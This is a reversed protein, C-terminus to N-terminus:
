SCRRDPPTSSSTVQHYYTGATDSVFSVTAETASTRYVAGATLIPFATSEDAISVVKGIGTGDVVNIEADYSEEASATIPLVTVLSLLMVMVLICSLTKKCM